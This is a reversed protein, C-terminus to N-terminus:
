GLKESCNAFQFKETQRRAISDFLSHLINCRFDILFFVCFSFITIIFNIKMVMVLHIFVRNKEFKKYKQFFPFNQFKEHKPKSNKLSFSKRFIQQIFCMWKGKWVELCAIKSM